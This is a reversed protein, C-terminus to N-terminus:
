QKEVSTEPGAWKWGSTRWSVTYSKWRLNNLSDQSQSSVGTLIFVGRVERRMPLLSISCDASSMRASSTTSSSSSTVGCSSFLICMFECRVRPMFQSERWTKNLPINDDMLPLLLIDSAIFTASPSMFEPTMISSASYYLACVDEPLVAACSGLRHSSRLYLKFLSRPWLPLHTTTFNTTLDLRSPDIM